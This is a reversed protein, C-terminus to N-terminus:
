KFFLKVQPLALVIVTVINVIMPVPNYFFLNFLASGVNLILALTWGTPRQAYLYYAVWVFFVVLLPTFPGILLSNFLIVLVADALNLAVAVMLALRSHSIDHKAQSGDEGSESEPEAKGRESRNRPQDRM